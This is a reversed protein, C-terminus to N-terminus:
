LVVTSVGPSPRIPHITRRVPAHSSYPCCCWVSFATIAHRRSVCVRGILLRGVQRTEDTPEVPRLDVLGFEGTVQVEEVPREFVPAEGGRFGVRQVCGCLLPVEIRVCDPGGVVGVEGRERGCRDRVTDDGGGLAGVQICHGVEQNERRLPRGSALTAELPDV